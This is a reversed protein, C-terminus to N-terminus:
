LFGIIYIQCRKEQMVYFIVNMLYIFQVKFTLATCLSNKIPSALHYPIIILMDFTTQTAQSGFRPPDPPMNGASFNQNKLHEPICKQRM